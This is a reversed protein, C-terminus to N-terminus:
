LVAIPTKMQHVWQYMFTQHDALSDKHTSIEEHYNTYQQNM